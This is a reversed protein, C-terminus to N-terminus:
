IKVKTRLSNFKVLISDSDLLHIKNALQLLAYRIKAQISLWKQTEIINLNFMNLGENYQAKLLIISSQIKRNHQFHNLFFLM